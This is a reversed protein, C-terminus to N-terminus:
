FLGNPYKQKQMEVIAKLDNIMGRVDDSFEFHELESDRIVAMSMPYGIWDYKIANDKLFPLAMMIGNTYAMSCVKKLVPDNVKGGIVRILKMTELQATVKNAKEIEIKEVIENDIQNKGYRYSGYSSLLIAFIFAIILPIKM